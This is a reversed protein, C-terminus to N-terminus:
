WYFRLSQAWPTGGYRGKLEDYWAKRQAKGVEQGGCDNKGSPAYCQVARFLAYARDAAPTKARAILKKYIDGRSFIEGPFIPKGGGLEDKGPAGGEVDDLSQTRTMEGLCLLARSDEPDRALAAVTQRFAPCAYGDRSGPWAFAAARAWSMKPAEAEDKAIAEPAYDRLFNTYQGRTAEKYLLVFRALRREEPTSLPNAVAERLLIPGAAYTLVQARLRPSAIRTEPLFVQNLTGAREFSMALGLEVAEKRWPKEARPLLQRWHDAAAAFDGSAMLAQGRLVERSFSLYSRGDEPPGLAQLAAKADGDAYYARAAKLFGFLADRGAFDAAQADLDAAAFHPRNNTDGRLRILDAVALLDPNHSLAGDPRLFKWDIEEALSASAQGAEPLARGYEAALRPKDGALWFIRRTLGRASAAYRGSPYDALYASFAKEADTLANTDSVVPQGTQDYASFAGVQAKNLAARGLMYRATEKLWPNKAERLSAFAALAADFAGDYFAQAGTLYAAFERATASPQPLAALFDPPTAQAKDGCASSMGERAAILAAREAENLDAAAQAAQKFAQAGSDLSRCRSGEGDAFGSNSPESAPAGFAADFEARDFLIEANQLEKAEGPPKEPWPKADMMLMQLNIRSDNGPSLFPLGIDGTFKMHDLTWPASPPLDSCALAGGACMCTASVVGALLRRM